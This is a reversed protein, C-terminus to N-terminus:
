QKEFILSVTNEGGRFGTSTQVIKLVKNDDLLKWDESSKRETTQGGRSFKVVSNIKVSKSDGDWSAKSIRPSNFFESKTESGDLPIDENTTQEDGWETDVQKKVHLLDGDQDIVIERPINGTGNKGVDSKEENFIWNGSYNVPCKTKLPLLPLGCAKRYPAMVEWYGPSEQFLMRPNNVM